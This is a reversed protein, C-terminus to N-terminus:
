SWERKRKRKRKKKRKKRKRRGKKKPPPPSKVIPVYDHYVKTERVIHVCKLKPTFRM